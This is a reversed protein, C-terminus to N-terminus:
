TGSLAMEDLLLHPCNVGGDFKLDNGVQRIGKLMTLTDSALSVDTVPTTIEGKEIMLGSAQYSWGGTAPDYGFAGTDTLYFARDLGRIMDELPTDGNEVYLSRPGIGPVSQYGRAAHGTSQAGAKAAWRLNYVFSRVTGKELLVVRRSPVGEGDCPPGGVARPRYPDDVLTVLPSAVTEGMRETLYSAKKFVQEGSFAGFLNQMWGGAVDPHMLVPLQETAVKRAGVMRIARRAAEGGIEEPGRLDELFRQMSGDGGSRQKGDADDALVGLYVVVFTSPYRWDVGRTNRIHTEADARTAGAYQTGGVRSDAERAAREAAVVRAVLDDPGLAAVAPDHLELAIAPAPAPDALVNAEDPPSSRALFVAREALADLSEPRFDSTWVLAARGDVIVRLGMGRSDAQKVSEARGDRVEVALERNSQLFAEAETAGAKTASRLIRDVTKKTDRSM